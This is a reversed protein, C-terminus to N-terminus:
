ATDPKVLLPGRLPRSGQALRQAAQPGLMQRLNYRDLTAMFQNRAETLVSKLVCSPLLPCEYANNGFCEVLNMNDETARVVEGINVLEPARALRMGGGKGRVTDVLGVTSLHNVVKMLHNESVRYSEAIEAITCLREPHAALYVLVRLSYDTFRTLQM